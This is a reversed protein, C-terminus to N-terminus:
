ESYETWTMIAQEMEVETLHELVLSNPMPAGSALQDLEEDSTIFQVSRLAVMLWNARIQDPLRAWKPCPNGQFNVGGSSACYIAYFDKARRMVDAYQINGGASSAIRAPLNAM